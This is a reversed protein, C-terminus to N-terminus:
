SLKLNSVGVSGVRSEGCWQGSPHKYGSLCEDNSPCANSYSPLPVSNKLWCISTDKVFTWALCEQIEDCSAACATPNKSLFRTIDSGPLDYSYVSNNVALLFIVIFFSSKSYWKAKM